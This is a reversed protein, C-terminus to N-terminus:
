KAAARPRPAHAGDAHALRRGRGGRTQAAPLTGATPQPSHCSAAAITNLTHEHQVGGGRRERGGCVHTHARTREQTRRRNDDSTNDAQVGPRAHTRTRWQSLLHTVQSQRFFHLLRPLLTGDLVRHQRQLRLPPTRPSLGASMWACAVRETSAPAGKGGIRWGAYVNGLRQAWVTMGRPGGAKAAETRHIGKSDRKWGPSARDTGGGVNATRLSAEWQKHRTYPPPAAAPWAPRPPWLPLRTEPASHSHTPVGFSHAQTAEPAHACAYMHTPHARSRTNNQSRM